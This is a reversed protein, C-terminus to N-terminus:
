TGNGLQSHRAGKEYMILELARIPSVSYLESIVYNHVMVFDSHKTVARCVESYELYREVNDVRYFHPSEEYVYRYVRSDWIPFAEPSLFHLLKSTGVLSGNFYKKLASADSFNIWGQNRVKNVISLISEMDGTRFDFVTPMWGYTFHLGITLSHKDILHCNKFYKLFEPYSLHYSSNRDFRVSTYDKLIRKLIVNEFM